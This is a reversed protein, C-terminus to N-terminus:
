YQWFSWVIFFGTDVWTIYQVWGELVDETAKFAEVALHCLDQHDELCIYQRSATAATITQAVDAM